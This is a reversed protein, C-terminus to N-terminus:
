CSCMPIIMTFKIENHGNPNGLDGFKHWEEGYVTESKVRNLDDSNERHEVM